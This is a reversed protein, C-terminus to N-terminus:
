KISFPVRLSLAVNLGQNYVNFDHGLANAVTGGTAYPRLRNLHDIYQVDLLNNATLAWEVPWQKYHCTGGVALNLLNYGNTATEYSAFRNQKLTNTMGIM